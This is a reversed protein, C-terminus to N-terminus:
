VPIPNTVRCAPCYYVKEGDALIGGGMGSGCKPCQSPNMNTLASATAVERDPTQEDSVDSSAIAVQPAVPAFPNFVTRGTTMKVTM